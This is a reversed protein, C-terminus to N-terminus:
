IRTSPCFNTVQRNCLLLEFLLFLSHSRTYPAHLPYLFSFDVTRSNNNSHLFRTVKQKLATWLLCLGHFYNWRLASKFVFPQFYENTGESQLKEWNKWIFDFTWSFCFLTSFPFILFFFFYLRLLPLFLLLLLLTSQLINFTTSSPRSPSIM